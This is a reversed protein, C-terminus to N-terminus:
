LNARLRQFERRRWITEIFLFYNSFSLSFIWSTNHRSSARNWKSYANVRFYWERSSCKNIHLRRYMQATYKNPAINGNHAVNKKCKNSHVGMITNRTGRFCVLPALAFAIMEVFFRQPLNMRTRALVADMRRRGKNCKSYSGHIMKTRIIALQATSENVRSHLTRLQQQTRNTAHLAAEFLFLSIDISALFIVTPVSFIPSSRISANNNIAWM